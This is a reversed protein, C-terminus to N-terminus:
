GVFGCGGGVLVFDMEHRTAPGYVGDVKLNGGEIDIITQFNVVAQKTKPGYDGDATVPIANCNNLAAQMATVASSVDGQALWCNISGGSSVPVIAAAGFIDSVHASHTCQPTSAPAATVVASTSVNTAAMAASSGLVAPAALVAAAIFTRLLRRMNGRRKTHIAAM